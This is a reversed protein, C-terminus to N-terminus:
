VRRQEYVNRESRTADRASIVRIDDGRHTYVVVVIRGLFDTGISVFRQESKVIEQKSTLASEAEVSAFADAIYIGHKKCNLDVKESRGFGCRTYFKCKQSIAHRM